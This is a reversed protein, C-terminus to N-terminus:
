PQVNEKPGIIIHVRGPAATGQSSGPPTSPTSNNAEIRKNRTDYEIREGSFSQNGQIVQAQGSLLIKESNVDYEMKSAEAHVPEENGPQHDISAPQGNLEAHTIRNNHLRVIIEDAQIKMGPRQLIVHGRYHATQRNQDLVLQDSSISLMDEAQIPGAMCLLLASYKVAWHM